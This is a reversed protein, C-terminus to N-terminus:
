FGSIYILVLVMFNNNVLKHRIEGIVGIEEVVVIGGVVWGFIERM